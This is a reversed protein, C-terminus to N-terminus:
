EHLFDKWYMSGSNIYRRGEPGTNAILDLITVHPDFAGHLQPYSARNYTMYEVRIGHREFLDHDLYHRAGHGTIYHTGHLAQVLGLLKETSHGGVHFDSARHYDTTVGFYDAVRQISRINLDCLHDSAQDYVTEVIGIMDDVYPAQAYCHALTRLHKRRWQQDNDILAQNIPPQGCRKIPLSLWQTGGPAKIQVRSVFSRGQPLLADDYHVYADALRIQEFIGIWPFFMPQSIVIRKM